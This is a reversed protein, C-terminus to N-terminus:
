TIEAIMAEFQLQDLQIQQVVPEDVAEGDRRADDDAMAIVQYLRPYAERGPDSSPSPRPNDKSAVLVRNSLSRSESSAPKDQIEGEPKTGMSQNTNSLKEKHKSDQDQSQDLGAVQRTRIWSWSLKNEM